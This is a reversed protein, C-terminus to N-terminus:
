TDTEESSTMASWAEKVRDFTAQAEKAGEEGNDRLADVEPAALRLLQEIDSKCLRM